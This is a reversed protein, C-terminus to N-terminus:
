LKNVATVKSDGEERQAAICLAAMLDCGDSFGTKSPEGVIPVAENAFKM